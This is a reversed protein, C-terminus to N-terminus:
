GVRLMEKNSHVRIELCIPAEKGLILEITTRESVKLTLEKSFQCKPLIILFESSITGIYPSISQCILGSTNYLLM